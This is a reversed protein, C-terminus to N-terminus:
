IAIPFKNGVVIRQAEKGERFLNWAKIIYAARDNSKARMKSNNEVIVKNRAAYIPSGEKLDLGNCFKAMFADAMELNKSSFVAHLAISLPRSIFPRKFKAMFADAMELNKSSFVAHLAISLPRSIFPRKFKAMFEFSEKIQKENEKAFELIESNTYIKERSEFCQFDKYYMLMRLAAVIMQSNLEMGEINLVDAASRNRGTDMVKFSESDLGHLILFYQSTGSLKIGELRHQGNILQGKTNFSIPSGDFLWRGATMDAALKKSHRVNLPRNGGNRKLMETAVDPTVLRLETKITPTTM